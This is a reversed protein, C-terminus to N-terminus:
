TLPDDCGKGKLYEKYYQCNTTSECAEECSIYLCPNVSSSISNENKRIEFHLHAGTSIGKCEDDGGSYGILQGQQVIDGTKVLFGGCKIHGYLTYFTEGNLDHKIIIVNGYDPDYQAKVVVGSAAALVNNGSTSSLDIGSHFYQERWGFCSTYKIYDKLPLIFNSSQPIMQKTCDEDSRDLKGDCDNDINDNCNDEFSTKCYICWDNNTNSNATNPALNSCKQCDIWSSCKCEFCFSDGTCEGYIKENQCFDDNGDCFEAGEVINNGCYGANVFSIEKGTYNYRIKITYPTKVFLPDLYSKFTRDLNEIDEKKIEKDTSFVNITYCDDIVPEKGFEHKSWCKEGCAKLSLLIDPKSGNLDQWCKTPVAKWSLSIFIIIAAIPVSILLMEAVIKNTGLFVGLHYKTKKL